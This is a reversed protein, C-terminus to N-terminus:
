GSSRTIKEKAKNEVDKKETGDLKINKLNPQISIFRLYLLMGINMSYKDFDTLLNQIRLTQRIHAYRM